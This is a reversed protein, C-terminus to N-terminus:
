GVFVPVLYQIIIIFLGFDAAIVGQILLSARL